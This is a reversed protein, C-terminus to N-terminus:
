GKPFAEGTELLSKLDSLIWPWGGGGMEGFANDGSTMSAVAPMDALEHTVTLRCVGDQGPGEIEYTVDVNEHERYTGAVGLLMSLWRWFSLKGERALVRPFLLTAGVVRYDTGEVQPVGNVFVDYPPRVHSPLDVRSRSEM